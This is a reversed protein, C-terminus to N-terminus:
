FPWIFDFFRHGYGPNQKDAIVGKGTLTIRADAIASSIVVNDSGIDKPRIIGSLQIFQRENNLTVERRGEIMMNGNPYVEVVKASLMAIIRDKRSTAGSGDYSNQSDTDIEPDFPQEVREKATAADTNKGWLNDMGFDLPSGFFKTIKSKLGAKRTLKTKADRSADSIESIKVTVIDNINRAKTDEFLYARSNHPAWLSGESPNRVYLDMTDNKASVTASDASVVTTTPAKKLISSCGALACLGVLVFCQVRYITGM